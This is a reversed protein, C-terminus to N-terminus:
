VAVNSRALLWPRIPGFASWQCPRRIVEPFCRHVSRCFRRSPGPSGEDSAREKQSLTARLCRRILLNASGVLARPLAGSSPGLRSCPPLLVTSETEYVSESGGAGSDASQTGLSTGFTAVRVVLACQRPDICFPVDAHAFEPRNAIALDADGSSGVLQSPAAQLRYRAPRIPVAVRNDM